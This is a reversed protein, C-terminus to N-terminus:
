CINLTQIINDDSDDDILRSFFDDIDQHSSNLSNIVM